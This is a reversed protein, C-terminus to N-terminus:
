SLLNRDVVANGDVAKLRTRGNEDVGDLGLLRRTYLMPDQPSSFDTRLYQGGQEGIYNAYIQATLLDVYHMVDRYVGNESLYQALEERLM